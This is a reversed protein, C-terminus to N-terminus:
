LACGNITAWHTLISECDEEISRFTEDRNSTNVSKVLTPGDDGFDVTFCIDSFDNDALQLCVLLGGKQIVSEAELGHILPFSSPEMAFPQWSEGVKLSGRRWKSSWVDVSSLPTLAMLSKILNDRAAMVSQEISTM